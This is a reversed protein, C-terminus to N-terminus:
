IHFHFLAKFPRMTKNCRGCTVKGTVMNYFDKKNDPTNPFNYRFTNKIRRITNYETWTIKM